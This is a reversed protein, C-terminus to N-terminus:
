GRLRIRCVRYWYGCESERYFRWGRQLLFTDLSDRGEGRPVPADNGRLPIEGLLFCDLVRNVGALRGSGNPALASAIICQSAASPRISAAHSPRAAARRQIAAIARLRGRQGLRHALILDFKTFGRDGKELAEPIEVSAARIRIPEPGFTQSSRNVGRPCCITLVARACSCKRRASTLREFPGSVVRSIRSYAAIAPFSYMLISWASLAAAARLAM